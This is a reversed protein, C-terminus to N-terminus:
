RHFSVGNSFIGNDAQRSWAPDDLIIWQNAKQALARPPHQHLGNLGLDIGKDFAMGIKNVILAALANHAIAM